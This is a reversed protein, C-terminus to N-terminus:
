QLLIKKQFNLKDDSDIVRMLHPQTVNITSQHKKTKKQNKDKLKSKRKNKLESKLNFQVTKRSKNKQKGTIIETENKEKKPPNNANQKEKQQEKIKEFLKSHNPVNELIIIDM